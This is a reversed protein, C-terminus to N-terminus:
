LLRWSIPTNETNSPLPVILLELPKDTQTSIQQHLAKYLWSGNNHVGKPSRTLTGLLLLRYYHPAFFNKINSSKCQKINNM